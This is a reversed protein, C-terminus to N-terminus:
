HRSATHGQQTPGVYVRAEAPHAVAILSLSVAHLSGHVLLKILRRPLAVVRAATPQAHVVRDAWVM